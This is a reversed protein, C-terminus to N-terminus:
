EMGFYRHEKLYRLSRGVGEIGGVELTLPIDKGLGRWLRDAEGWNITGEGIPLHDDFAGNNDSLHLYGIRDCLADFWGHIAVRSYNAHGFDLCVGIRQDPIRRMLEWIPRPDLDPSNEIYIHTQYQEALGMYCDACTDAWSELYGGRLFPFCSSHFVINKAKLRVALACSERCRRRSVLRFSPDGSAVNVDIFAGHISTVRGSAHYWNCCNDYRTMYDIYPPTVPELAEYSLNEKEALTTWDVRAKYRPQIQM